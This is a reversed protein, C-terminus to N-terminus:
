PSGLSRLDSAEAAGSIASTGIGSLSRISEEGAAQRVSRLAARLDDMDLTEHISRRLWEASEGRGAEHLQTALEDRALPFVGEALLYGRALSTLAGRVHEQTADRDEITLVREALSALAKAREFKRHSDPWLGEGLIRTYAARFIGHSDHLVCGLRVTWQVFDDGEALRRQFRELTDAILDVEGSLGSLDPRPGVLHFDLDSIATRHGRATSGTLAVALADADTARRLVEATIAQLSPSQFLFARERDDRLRDDWRMKLDVDLV